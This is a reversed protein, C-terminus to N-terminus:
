LPVVQWLARVARHFCLCQTNSGGSALVRVANKVKVITKLNGEETTSSGRVISKREPTNSSDEETLSPKRPPVPPVKARDEVKRNDNSVAM